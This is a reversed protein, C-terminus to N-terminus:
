FIGPTDCMERAAVFIRAILDEVSDIPGQVSIDENSGLLLGPMIPGAISHGHYRYTAVEMVLPGKGARCLESAFRTAERVALVDMGDVGKLHTWGHARYSTIVTDSKRIAAEMGVACAEQGSYSHCFGRIIKEKYLSIAATEMRRVIMMDRYYKLADEKNVTVDSSPGSDLLHLKYPLECLPYFELSARAGLRDWDILVCETM